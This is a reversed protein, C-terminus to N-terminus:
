WGAGWGILAIGVAVAGGLRLLRRGPDGRVFCSAFGLGAGALGLVALHYPSALVHGLGHEGLGHGPHAGASLVGALLV